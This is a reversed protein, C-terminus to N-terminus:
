SHNYHPLVTLAHHFKSLIYIYICLLTSVFLNHSIMSKRSRIRTQYWHFIRQSIYPNSIPQQHSNVMFVIGSDWVDLAFEWPIEEYNNTFDLQFFDQTEGRTWQYIYIYMISNLLVYIILNYIYTYIKKNTIDLSGWWIEAPYLGENRCTWSRGM